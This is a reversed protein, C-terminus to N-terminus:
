GEAPDDLDCTAHVSETLERIADDRTAATVSLSPFELCWAIAQGSPDDLAVVHLVRDHSVVHYVQDPTFYEQVIAEALPQRVVCARADYDVSM